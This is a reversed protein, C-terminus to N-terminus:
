VGKHGDSRGLDSDTGDWGLQTAAIDTKLQELCNLDAYERLDALVETIWSYEPMDAPRARAAADGRVEDVLSIRRQREAPRTSHLTSLKWAQQDGSGGAVLPDNSSEKEQM